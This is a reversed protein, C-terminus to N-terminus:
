EPSSAVGSLEAGSKGHRKFSYPSALIQPTGRIFAFRKGELTGEPVNQGDLQKLKPKDEFLDIQSPGGSMFLFIINKAQPAFHPVKPALPSGSDREAGALLKPDLLAALAVSGVGLGGRFFFHRRTISKLLNNKSEKM